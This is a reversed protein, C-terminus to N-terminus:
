CPRDFRVFRGAGARRVLGRLELELLRPLLRATSLGSRESIADLDIAEGLPLHALLPELVAASPALPAERGGQVATGMGLEEFIDDATEVIKAGDRLLMHGGRNRANLVNGPVALVDRGQELACRATILSGSQEGAEVVVVALSLGSILRNRQPFFHPLPPTGPVLESMVLGDAQIDQALSGHEAPYIVDAASGLVAITIGGVSLAGRHAASDVGRALGSVVSFGRTAVDAALRGAVELAYPSAARSGVIAVAPREFAALSGRTWIAPPPDIIAFLPPPYGPESWVLSTLGRAAAQALASEAHKLVEDRKHPQHPWRTVTLQQLVFAPSNGARLEAAVDRWWNVPLLSLAVYDVREKMLPEGAAPAGLFSSTAMVASVHPPGVEQCWNYVSKTFGAPVPSISSHKPRWGM